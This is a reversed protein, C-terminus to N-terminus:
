QSSLQRLNRCSKLNEPNFKQYWREMESYRRSKTLNNKFITEAKECQGSLAMSSIYYNNQFAAENMARSQLNDYINEWVQLSERAIKGAEVWLGAQDLEIAYMSGGIAILVEGGRGGLRQVQHGLQYQKKFQGSHYYYQNLAMIRDHAVPNDYKRDVFPKLMELAKVKYEKEKELSKTQGFDGYIGARSISIVEENPYMESLLNINYYLQKYSLGGTAQQIMM